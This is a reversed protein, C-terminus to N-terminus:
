TPRGTSPPRIGSCLDAGASPLVLWAGAHRLADLFLPNDSRAVLVNSFGGAGVLTGGAADIIAITRANSTWPPAVVAYANEARSPAITMIALGALCAALLGLAPWCESATFKQTPSHTIPM